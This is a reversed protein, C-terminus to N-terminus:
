FRPSYRNIFCKTREKISRKPLICLRGMEELVEQTFYPMMGYNSTLTMEGFYIKGDLNYLDVRCQPLGKSLKSAMEIMQTLKEPKPCQRNSRFDPPLMDPRWNWDLDYCTFEAHHTIPDRGLCVFICYPKGDFCWIKYDILGLPNNTELLEEAIICPKIRLYHIEGNDYGFKTHLSKNLRERIDAIDAKSKDLVIITDYSGNNPKIVFKKPLLNFDIDGVNDWKGILQTLNDGGGMKDTVYQRVAYKDALITWLSTDSFFELWIIKENLDHPNALNLTQGIEQVYRHKVYIYPMHFKMFNWFRCNLSNYVRIALKM